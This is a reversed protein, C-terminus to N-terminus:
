RQIVVRASRSYEGIDVVIIYTGNNLHSVDVEGTTTTNTTLLQGDISYIAVPVESGDQEKLDILFQGSSPNPYVNVSSERLEINSTVLNGDCDIIAYFGQIYGNQYYDYVGGTVLVRNDDIRHVDSVSYYHDGGYARHWVEETGRFKTVYFSAPFQPKNWIRPIDPNSITIAHSGDLAINTHNLAKEVQEPNSIKGVTDVVISDGLISLQLFLEHWPGFNGFPSISSGFFTSDNLQSIQTDFLQADWPHVPDPYSLPFRKLVNLEFDCLSMIFNKGNMLISDEGIIDMDRIFRHAFLRSEHGTTDRKVQGSLRIQGAEDIEILSIIEAYNSGHFSSVATYIKNGYSVPKSYFIESTLGPIVITDIETLSGDTFDYQTTIIVGTDSVVAIWAIWLKQGIVNSPYIPYALSSSDDTFEIRTPNSTPSELSFHDIKDAVLFLDSDHVFCRFYYNDREEEIVQIPSVQASLSESIFLGIIFLLRM